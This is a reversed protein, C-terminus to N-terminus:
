QKKEYKINKKLFFCKFYHSTVTRFILGERGRMIQKQNQKNKKNTQHSQQVLEKFNRNKTMDSQQEILM